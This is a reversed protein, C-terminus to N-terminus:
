VNDEGDARICQALGNGNSNTVGRTEVEEAAVDELVSTPERLLSRCTGTSRRDDDTDVRTRTLRSGM